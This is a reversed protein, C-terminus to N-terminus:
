KENVRFGQDHAVAIGHDTVFRPPVPRAAAVAAIEVDGRRRAPEIIIRPAIGSADLLGIRQVRSSRWELM